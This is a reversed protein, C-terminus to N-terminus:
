LDLAVEVAEILSRAVPWGTRELLERHHSGGDYLVAKAGVLEAARADDPTDGIAVVTAPDLALRTLHRRLDPGKEGGPEGISGDYGIFRDTLGAVPVIEILHDHPAMSLLSQSAGAFEVRDLAAIADDALPVEVLLGYYVEHFVANIDFWEDDGILRGLLRDYFGRVPREYHLRYTEADIVPGECRALGANVADIVLPLDDLLTGNWDWVIHREAM